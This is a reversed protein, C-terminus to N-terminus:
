PAELDGSEPPLMLAAFCLLYYLFTLRPVDFMSDLLGIALFGALGALLGTAMLDGRGATRALRVLIWGSFALFLALGVAGQEFYIAVALQKVHWPLHNDTAFFWRANAAAFDGNRLLEGGDASVLSLNDIDIGAGPAAYYLALKTPRRSYWTGAGLEGSDLEMRYRHWQGDATIGEVGQWRCDYSYLLSKACVPITLAPAPNVTRLDLGLRYRRHPQLAVIQEYYLSDGATLTLFRNDGEEGFRYAGLPASNAHALAYTVPFKGLGMGFLAVLPGPDMIGVAGRWHGIRTELDQRVTGLRQQFYSGRIIPLVAAGLVLLALGFTWARGLRHRSSSRALGMSLGWALVAMGVGLGLLAARAFTVALGYGALGLLLAGVIPTWYARKILLWTVVFPLALSLYAEIHGGGTHMSSFTGTVRFDNAFNLLGSFMQREYLVGAMVGLFGLIMGPFLFDRFALRDTLTARAVPLMALAWLLGKAVRLSNYPSHYSAFANDDLPAPPLLGALLALLLSAALLLILPLGPLPAVPAPRWVGLLYVGLTAALFFDGTEWYFWGSWPTLDLAPVAAPIVLLWVRPWKVLALSYAILSAGLWLPAVPYHALLALVVAALGAAVARGSWLAFTTPAVLPRSAVPRPTRPFRDLAPGLIAEPEPLPMTWPDRPAPRAAPPSAAAPGPARPVTAPREPAPRTARRHRGSSSRASVPDAPPQTRDRRSPGLGGGAARGTLVRALWATLGYVVLASVLAILVNSPDPHAPPFFLKGAEIALSAPIALAAAIWAGGTRGDARGAVLAWALLGFPAYAPAQALTSAMAVSETTFYHYYFPVWHIDSLRALADSRSLAPTAFWGSVLALGALYPLSLIPTALRLARALPGPGLQRLREALLAGLVMGVGRLPISLGQSTGSAILLQLPELALGLLVGVAFLWRLRLAPWRLAALLGFPLAALADLGLRAGCRVPEGCSAATLWGLNDSGLKLRLEGPTLVFDYPFLSLALYFIGYAVLAALVSARGGQAFADWLWLIRARGLAWLLLGILTGIAEAVLDNISVTRPAFWQQAFEVGFAVALCFVGVLAVGLAARWGGRDIGLLATCGLFALPVYLVINAIWDARSAMGLNLYPIQAFAGVAQDWALPRLEFPVLSGYVVFGLYLLFAVPAQSRRSVNARM